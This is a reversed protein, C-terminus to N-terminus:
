VYACGRERCSARGIQFPDPAYGPHVALDVNNEREDIDFSPAGSDAAVEAARLLALDYSLNVLRAAEQRREARSFASAREIPARYGVRVRDRGLDEDFWGFSGTTQVSSYLPYRPGTESGALAVAGLFAAGLLAAPAKRTRRIM